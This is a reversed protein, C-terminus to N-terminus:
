AKWGYKILQKAAFEGYRDENTPVTMILLNSNCLFLIFYFYQCKIFHRHLTYCSNVALKTEEQSRVMEGWGVIGNEKM